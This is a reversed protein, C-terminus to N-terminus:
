VLLLSGYFPGYKEFESPVSRPAEPTADRRPEQHAAENSQNSLWHDITGQEEKAQIAESVVDSLAQYREMDESALVEEVLSLDQFDLSSIDDEIQREVTSRLGIPALAFLGDVFERLGHVLEIFKERDNVAWSVRKIVTIQRRARNCLRNYSRKFISLSTSSILDLRAVGEIQALGDLEEVAYKRKLQESDTLLLKISELVSKITEEIAPDNLTDDRGSDLARAIGIANGWSVLRAKEVDLKVLLISFNRELSKGAKVYAFAEVCTSFLSALSIIGTTLGVVEAM